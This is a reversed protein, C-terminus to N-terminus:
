ARELELSVVARLIAVKSSGKLTPADQAVTPVVETHNSGVLALELNAGASSSPLIAQALTHEVEWMKVVVNMTKRTKFAEIADQVVDRNLSFNHPTSIKKMPVISAVFLM